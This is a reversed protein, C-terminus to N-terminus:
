LAGRRQLEFVADKGLIDVTAILKRGARVFIKNIQYGRTNVSSPIM